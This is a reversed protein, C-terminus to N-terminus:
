LFGYGALIVGSVIGKRHPFYEWGCVLPIFYCVGNGLGNMICYYALFVPLSQAFSALYIGLISTGAGLFIVLKVSERVHGSSGVVVKLRLIFKPSTLVSFLM